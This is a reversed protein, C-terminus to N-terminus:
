PIQLFLIFPFVIVLVHFWVVKFIEIYVTCSVQASKKYQKKLMTEVDVSETERNWDHM